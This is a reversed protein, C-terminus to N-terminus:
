RGLWKPEESTCGLAAFGDRLAQWIRRKTAAPEKPLYWRVNFSGTVTRPDNQDSEAFVEPLQTEVSWDDAGISVADHDAARRRGVCEAAADDEVGVCAAVARSGVDDLSESTAAVTLWFWRRRNGVCRRRGSRGPWIALLEGRKDLLNTSGAGLSQACGSKVYVRLRELRQSALLADDSEGVIEKDMCVREGLGALADDRQESGLWRQGEARRAVRKADRALGRSRQQLVEVCRAHGLLQGVAAADQLALLARVAHSSL